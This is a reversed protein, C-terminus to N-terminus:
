IRLKDLLFIVGEKKPGSHESRGCFTELKQQPLDVEFHKQVEMDLKMEVEM